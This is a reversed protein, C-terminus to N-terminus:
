LFLDDLYDDFEEERSKLDAAQVPDKWINGATESTNREDGDKNKPEDNSEDGTEKSSQGSVSDPKSRDKRHKKRNKKTKIVLKPKNKNNFNLKISCELCLGLVCFNCCM